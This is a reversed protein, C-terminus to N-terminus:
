SRFVTPSGPDIADFKVNVSIKDIGNLELNLFLQQGGNVAAQSQPRFKLFINLNALKMGSLFGVIFDIRGDRLAEKTKEDPIM